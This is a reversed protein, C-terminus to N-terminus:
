GEPTNSSEPPSVSPQATMAQEPSPTASSSSTEPEPSAATPAPTQLYTLPSAKDTRSPLLKSLPFQSILALVVPVVVAALVALRAWFLTKTGLGFAAQHQRESQEGIRLLEIERRLLEIRDRCSTVLRGDLLYPLIASLREYYSQMAQLSLGKLKNPETEEIAKQLAHVHELAM